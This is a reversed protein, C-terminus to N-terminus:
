KTLSQLQNGFLLNINKPSKRIFVKACNAAAQTTSSSSSSEVATVRTALTALGGDSELAKIRAALKADEDNLRNVNNLNDNYAIAAVGAVAIAGAVIQFLHFM